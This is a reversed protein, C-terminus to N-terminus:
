STETPPQLSLIALAAVAEARRQGTWDGHCGSHLWVHGGDGTLYPLGDRGIEGLPQGCHACWTPGSAPPPNRWLWEVVCCEFARQEADTRSLGGDHEAIGAREDFHTRWDEADWEAARENDRSAPSTVVQGVHGRGIAHSLPVTERVGELVRAALVKLSPRTIQPQGVTGNGLAPVRPVGEQPSDIM